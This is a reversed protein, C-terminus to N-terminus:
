FELALEDVLGAPRHAARVLQDALHEVLELLQETALPVLQLPAQVAVVGRGLVEALRQAVVAREEVTQEGESGPRVGTGGSAACRRHAACVSRRTHPAGDRRSVPTLAPRPCM